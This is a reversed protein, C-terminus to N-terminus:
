KKNLEAIIQDIMYSLAGDKTQPLSTSMEAVARNGVIGKSTISTSGYQKLKEITGEFQRGTNVDMEKLMVPLKKVDFVASMKNQKMLKAFEKNAAGLTKNLRIDNLSLSDNSVMVLDEKLLVYVPFDMAKKSSFSYIGDQVKGIQKSVALDMGKKILRQDKSTFMWIFVPLTEEKTKKVETANYDDDYTYDIYDKKFKRLGNVVVL